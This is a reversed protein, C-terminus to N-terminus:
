LFRVQMSLANLLIACFGTQQIYYFYILLPPIVYIFITTIRLGFNREPNRLTMKLIFFSCSYILFIAKLFLFRFAIKQTYYNRSM